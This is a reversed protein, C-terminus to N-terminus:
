GGNHWVTFGICGSTISVPSSPRLLDHTRRYGFRRCVQAIEVIKVSLPQTHEAVL